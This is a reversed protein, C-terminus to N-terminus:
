HRDPPFPNWLYFSLIEAGCDEEALVEQACHSGSFSLALARARRQSEVRRVPRSFGRRAGDEQTSPGSLFWGGASRTHTHTHTHTNQHLTMESCRERSAETWSSPNTHPHTQAPCPPHTIQLPRIMLGRLDYLACKLSNVRSTRSLVRTLLLRVSSWMLSTLRQPSAFYSRLLSLIKQFFPRTVGIVSLHM